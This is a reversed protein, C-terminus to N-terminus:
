AAHPEAAALRELLEDPTAAAALADVFGTRRVLRAIRALLRIHVAAKEPPSLLVFFLRVPTTGSPGFQVPEAATAILIVPEAVSELTAHPAAVGRDLATTHAEERARLAEYLEGAHGAGSEGLREALAHLATDADRARLGIVVRERTVFDRIRM